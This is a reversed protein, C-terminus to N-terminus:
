PPLRRSPSSPERAATWCEPCPRRPSYWRPRLTSVSCLRSTTPNSRACAARGVAAALTTSWSTARPTPIPSTPRALATGGGANNVLVDLRGFESETQAVVARAAEPDTIDASLILASGGADRIAVATEDLLSQRRGVLTVAAGEGALAIASARGIGTGAGTVLAVQGDLQQM